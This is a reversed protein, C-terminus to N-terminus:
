FTVTTPTEKAGITVTTPDQCTVDESFQDDCDTVCDGGDDEMGTVGGGGGNGCTGQNTSVTAILGNGLSASSPSCTRYVKYSTANTIDTWTLCIKDTSDLASPGTEISVEDSLGSGSAGVPVVRYCYRFLGDDGVNSLAVSVKTLGNANNISTPAEGVGSFPFDCQLVLWSLQEVARDADPVGQNPHRSMNVWVWLDTRDTILSEDIPIILDNWTGLVYGLTGFSSGSSWDLEVICAAVGDSCSGGTALTPKGQYLAISFHEATQRASWKWRARLIVNSFGDPLSDVQFVNGPNQTADPLFANTVYTVDNPAIGTLNAHLLGSGGAKDHLTQTNPINTPVDTQIMFYHGNALRITM